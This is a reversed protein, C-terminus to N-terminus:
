VLVYFAANGVNVSFVKPCLSLIERELKAETGVRQEEGLHGSLGALLM